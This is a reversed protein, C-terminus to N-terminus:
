KAGVATWAGTQDDFCLQHCFPPGAPKCCLRAWAFTSTMHVCATAYPLTSAQAQTQRCPPRCPMSCPQLVNSATEAVLRHHFKGIHANNRIIGLLVCSIRKGTKLRDSAINSSAPTAPSPAAQAALCCM